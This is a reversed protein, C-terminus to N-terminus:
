GGGVAAGVLGGGRGELSILDLEDEEIGAPGGKTLGERISGGIVFESKESIGGGGGTSKESIGGGGCTM